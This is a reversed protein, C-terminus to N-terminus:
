KRVSVVDGREACLLFKKEFVTLPRERHHAMLGVKGTNSIDIAFDTMRRESAKSSRSLTPSRKRGGEDTKSPKLLQHDSEM